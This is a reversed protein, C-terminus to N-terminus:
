TLNTKNIKYISLFIGLIMLFIISGNVPVDPTPPISPIGNTQVPPNSKPNNYVGVNFNVYGNFSNDTQYNNRPNQASSQNIYLDAEDFISIYRDDFSADVQSYLYNSCFLFLSISIILKM